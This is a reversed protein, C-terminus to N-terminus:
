SEEVSKNPRSNQPPFKLMKFYYRILNLTWFDSIIQMCGLRYISLEYTHSEKINENNAAGLLGFSAVFCWFLGLIRLKDLLLQYLFSNIVIHGPRSQWFVLVAFFYFNKYGTLFTCM